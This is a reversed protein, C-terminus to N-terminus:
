VADLLRCVAGLVAEPQDRHPAHGCDDLHLFEFAPANTALSRILQV